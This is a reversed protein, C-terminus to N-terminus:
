GDRDLKLPAATMHGRLTGIPLRNMVFACSPFRRATGHSGNLLTWFLVKKQHCRGAFARWHKVRAPSRLRALMDGRADNLICSLRQKLIDIFRAGTVPVGSRTLGRLM